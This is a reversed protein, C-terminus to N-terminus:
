KGGWSFQSRSRVGPTGPTGDCREVKDMISQSTANDFVINRCFTGDLLPRRFQATAIHAAAKDSAFPSGYNRMVVVAGTFLGAGLVIVFFSSVAFVRWFRVRAARSHRAARMALIKRGAEIDGVDTSM